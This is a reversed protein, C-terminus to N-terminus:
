VQSGPQNLTQFNFSILSMPSFAVNARTILIAKLTNDHKTTELVQLLLTKQM